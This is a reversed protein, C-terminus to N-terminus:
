GIIGRIHPPAVVFHELLPAEIAALLARIGDTTRMDDPSPVAAGNPHNHALVVSAAQRTVVADVLKRMPISASNVSGEFLMESHIVARRNDLCLLLTREVTVGTYWSLIYDRIRDMGTVRGADTVKGINYLRIVDAIFKIFLASKDSIGKVKVLEEIPADFVAPLSKNFRDYLRHATPNVDGQPISYFLLFELVNHPDFAEIGGRLYRERMRNRHKGHIDDDAPDVDKETVNDDM